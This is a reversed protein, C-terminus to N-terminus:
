TLHCLFITLDVRNKILAGGHTDGLALINREGFMWWHHIKLKSKPNNEGIYNVTDVRYDQVVNWDGAIIVAPNSMLKKVLKDMRALAMYAHLASSHLRCHGNM